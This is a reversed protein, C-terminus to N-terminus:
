GKHHVDLAVLAALSGYVLVSAKDTDLFSNFLGHFFYTIFGMLIAIALWRIEKRRNTRYIRIGTYISVLLLLNFIIFGPLGTESLYTLYESHANGRDGNNTSIRTMEPFVQYTGYLFQYTGPGFGIVPRDRFMRLACQWRNIRELNSADTQINMVSELHKETDASRSVADVKEIYQYIDSQYHFIVAGALITVLMFHVLRFHFFVVLGAFLIAVIISLWAARSFSFFEGAILVCAILFILIRINRTIGFKEPMAFMVGMVPLVYAICTAYQTHDNYFPKTMMFSVAKVFGYHSHNILTSFIPILLGIAYLFWIKAINRFDTFLVSFIIFFVVMFAIRVVLRKISIVPMESFLTSIFLWSIDLLVLITVPHTFIKTNLKVPSLLRYVIYFAAIIGTLIEAPISVAVGGPLLLKISLPIAFVTIFVLLNLKFLLLYILPLSIAILYASYQLKTNNLLLSVSLLGIFLSIGIILWKLSLNTESNM